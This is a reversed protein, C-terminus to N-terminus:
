RVAKVMVCQGGGGALSGNRIRDHNATATGAAPAGLCGPRVGRRGALLLTGTTTNCPPHVGSDSLALCFVSNRRAAKIWLSITCAGAAVVAKQQRGM